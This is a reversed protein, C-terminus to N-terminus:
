SRKACAAQLKIAFLDARGNQERPASEDSLILFTQDDSPSVSGQFSNLRALFDNSLQAAKGSQAANQAFWEKLREEGFFDGHTNRSEIIGDTYLLACRFNELSIIEEEFHLAPVIGLPMGEPSITRIRGTKDALLMQCHGANALLLRRESAELLAVTATIFMDVGSLEDFMLRNIRSLMEAPRCTWEATTRILTRLTAAFMAAPVGKGMVDAVVLLARDESIPLVDYFDGGVQRASLCFGALGFGPLSPFTKPLLSQQIKRAIDLEHGLLRSEIQEHQLRTNVIQIALFESFIRIAEIQNKTFPERGSKRGIALTGLLSDRMLIPHVLGNCNDMAVALPDESSLPRQQDFEINAQSLAARREVSRIINGFRAALSGNRGPATRAPTTSPNLERERINPPLVIRELRLELNSSNAPVLQSGDTSLL